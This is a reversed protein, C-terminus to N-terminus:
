SSPLFAGGRVSVFGSPVGAPRSNREDVALLITRGDVWALLARQGGVARPGAYVLRRPGLWHAWDIRRLTTSDTATSDARVLTTAEWEGAFLRASDLLPHSVAQAGLPARFAITLLALTVSLQAPM